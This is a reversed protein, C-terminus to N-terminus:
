MRPKLTKLLLPIVIMLMVCTAISYPLNYTLSVTWAAASGAAVGDAWFYVGSIVVCLTRIVMTLLIGLEVEMVNKKSYFIASAGIIVSPIIYDVIYQPINLFWSNLGLLSSILWWLLGSVLGEKVGLHFSALVVPILAINVSGGNPMNLFPLLEKVYDLDLAMAVYIAIFVMKQNKKM